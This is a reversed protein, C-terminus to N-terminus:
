ASQHPGSIHYTKGDGQINWKEFLTHIRVCDVTLSSEPVISRSDVSMRASARKRLNWRSMSAMSLFGLKGAGRKEKFVIAGERSAGSEGLLRGEVGSLPPPPLLLLSLLLLLLLSLLLVWGPCFPLCGSGGFLGLPSGLFTMVGSSRRRSLLCTSIRGLFSTALCPSPNRAFAADLPWYIFRTLVFAQRSPHAFPSLSSSLCHARSSHMKQVLITQMCTVIFPNNRLRKKQTPGPQETRQYYPNTKTLRLVVHLTPLVIFYMAVQSKLQVSRFPEWRDGREHGALSLPFVAPCAQKPLVTPCSRPRIDNACEKTWSFLQRSM